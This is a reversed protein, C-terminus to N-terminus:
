AGQALIIELAKNRKKPKIEKQPNGNSGIDLPGHFTVPAPDEQHIDTVSEQPENEVAPLEVRQVRIGNCKGCQALVYDPHLSPRDVSNAHFGCNCRKPLIIKKSPKWPKLALFEQYKNESIAYNCGNQKFEIRKDIM